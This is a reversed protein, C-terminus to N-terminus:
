NIRTEEIDYPVNITEHAGPKPRWGGSFKEGDKSFKGDCTADLPGYAVSISLIDEQVDWKYPL